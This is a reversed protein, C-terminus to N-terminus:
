STSRAARRDAELGSGEAVEIAMTLRVIDSPSVIGLLRGDDIILARTDGHEDMRRVLLDVPDNSAATPVEAAPTMLESLYTDSRAGRPITRISKIEVLGLVREETDVVPYAAHRGTSLVDNVFREVTRTAPVVEPRPSMVEACTYRSLASERRSSQWEAASAERIFWGIAMLWLGGLLGAILIEIVGLWVMARGIGRGLRAARRTAEYESLGRGWLWSQYIRGGDLPFAPLLNFLALLLNITGFWVLVAALLGEAFVAATLGFVGCAISVMPGAAAISMATSPSDPARDMRAVGGLVWLTISKVGVDHRLAVTAHALEHALLAALFGVVAVSGATWYAVDTRGEVMEPLVQTALSWSILWGVIAVSWHIRVEIGQLRGILFGHM